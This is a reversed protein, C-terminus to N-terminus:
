CGAGAAHSRYPAPLRDAIFSRVEQRFAAQQPTDDWDM